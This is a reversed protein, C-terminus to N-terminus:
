GGMVVAPSVADAVGPNTPESTGSGHGFVAVVLVLAIIALVAMATLLPGIIAKAATAVAKIIRVIVMLAAVLVLVLTGPIAPSIPASLTTDALTSTTQLVTSV